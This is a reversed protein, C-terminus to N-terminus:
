LTAKFAIEFCNPLTEGLSASLRVHRWMDSLVFTLQEGFTTVVIASM